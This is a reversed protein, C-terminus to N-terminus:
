KPAPPSPRSPAAAIEAAAHQRFAVFEPHHRPSGLTIWNQLAAPDFLEETVVQAAGVLGASGGMQSRVIRLDRTVLPHSHRYVAERVAALLIDGTQAVSGGLVILAPNLVNALPAISEGVMRGARTLLDRCVSDGLEAGHGIDTAGVEGNRSLVDALFRSAGSDAARRGEAALADTGVLTDLTQGDILTHGLLGAAGQAGIHLRGGSIIGASVARGLKVFLLDCLGVGSGSKLEGMTMVQTGGRVWVPAGFRVALGEVFPFDQWSQLPRLKPAAFRGGDKEVPGPAALGIGWVEGKQDELLWNFLTALREFTAAPGVNLDIAEHHEALLRGRLDALGVAIATQDLVAVLVLGADACFEMHRPARGGTTQGLAGERVLGLNNLTALRDTVGARGLESRRELDLRTTAAGTRILNLLTALSGQAVEITRPRGVHRAKSAPEPREGRGEALEPRPM